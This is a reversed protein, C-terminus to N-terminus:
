ANEGKLCKRFLIDLEPIEKKLSVLKGERIFCHKSSATTCIEDRTANYFEYELELVAGNYKKVSVTIEVEDDFRVPKKYATSISEPKRWGNSIIPITSSGWRTQRM